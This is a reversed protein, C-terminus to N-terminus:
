KVESDSSVQNTLDQREQSILSYRVRSVKFHFYGNLRKMMLM